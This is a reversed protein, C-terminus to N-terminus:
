GVPLLRLEALTDADVLHTNDGAAVALMSGDPSWALALVLDRPEYRLTGFGTSTPVPTFTPAPAPTSTPATPTFTATPSPTQTAPPLTSTASPTHTSARQPTFTLAPIPSPSPSAPSSSKCAALFVPLLLSFVLLRARFPM